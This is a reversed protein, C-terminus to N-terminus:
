KGIVVFLLFHLPSVPSLPSVSVAGLSEPQRWKFYRGAVGAVRDTERDGTDGTPFVVPSVRLAKRRM